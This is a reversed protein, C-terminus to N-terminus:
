TQSCTLRSFRGEQTGHFARGVSIGVPQSCEELVLTDQERALCGCVWVLFYACSRRRLPM